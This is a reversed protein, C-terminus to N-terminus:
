ILVERERGKPHGPVKDKCVFNGVNFRPYGNGMSDIKLSCCGAKGHIHEQSALSCSVCTHLKFKKYNELTHPM